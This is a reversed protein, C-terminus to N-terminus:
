HNTKNCIDSQPVVEDPTEYQSLHWLGFERRIGATLPRYNCIKQISVKKSRWGKLSFSANNEGTGVIYITGVFPLRELPTGLAECNSRIMTHGSHLILCNKAEDNQDTPLESPEARVISSTGCILAFDRRRRFVLRSGEDHM